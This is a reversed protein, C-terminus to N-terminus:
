SKAAYNKAATANFELAICETDGEVWGDHGPEIVYVDGEVFTDITGDNHKASMSGSLITGVHRAQCSEGGVVPKICTSWSWGPQLFMKAAAVGGLDCVHINAKDPSRVEDLKNFSKKIIGNM